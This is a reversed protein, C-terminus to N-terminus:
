AETDAKGWIIKRPSSAPPPTPEPVPEVSRQGFKIKPKPPADSPPLPPPTAVTAPLPPPTAVVAPLPPPTAIAVVATGERLGMPKLVPRNDFPKDPGVWGMPEAVNRVWEAAEKNQPFPPEDKAFYWEYKAMKALSEVLESLPKGAFWTQVNNTCVHRPENFDINPHWIETLWLLSPEKNPYDKSLYLSVQHEVRVKPFGNDLVGAIGACTFTVIYKEPPQGPEVEVPEVRIFNSRSALRQLDNYDSELIEFRASKQAM